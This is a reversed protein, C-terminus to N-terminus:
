RLEFFEVALKGFFLPQRELQQAVGAIQHCSFEVQDILEGILQSFGVEAEPDIKLFEISIPRPRQGHRCAEYDILRSYNTGGIDVGIVGYSRFRLLSYSDESAQGFFGFAHIEFEAHLGSSSRHQPSSLIPAIVHSGIVGSEKVRVPNVPNLSPSVPHPCIEKSDLLSMCSFVPDNGM